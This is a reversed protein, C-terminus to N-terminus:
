PSGDENMGFKQGCFTATRPAFCLMLPTRNKVDRPQLDLDNKDLDSHNHPDEMFTLMQFYGEQCAFHMLTREMHHDKYQRNIYRFHVVTQERLEKFSGNLVKDAVRSFKSNRVSEKKNRAKDRKIDEVLNTYDEGEYTVYEQIYFALSNRRRRM